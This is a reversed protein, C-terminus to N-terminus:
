GQIMTSVIISQEWTRNRFQCGTWKASWQWVRRGLTARDEARGWGLMLGLNGKGDRASDRGVERQRGLDAHRLRAERDLGVPGTGGSALRCRPKKMFMMSKRGWSM